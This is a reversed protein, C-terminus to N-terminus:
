LIYCTKLDRVAVPSTFGFQAKSRISCFSSKDVRQLDLLSHNLVAQLERDTFTRVSV